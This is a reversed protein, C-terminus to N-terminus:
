CFFFRKIKSKFESLDWDRVLIRPVEYRSSWSHVQSHINSFAMCFGLEKCIRVSNCDYDAKAGFPYSFHRVDCGLLSEITEKSGNIENYQTDYDYLSLQTHTQGHAGIVASRSAHMLRLEEGSISRYPERGSEELDSWELLRGFVSEQVKRMSKRMSSRVADYAKRRGDESSTEFRRVVGDLELELEDPLDAGCLFIREVEDWWFEKRTGLNLTSVFFLAETDLSELVPLVNTYNDCYGDDFTLLVSGGPFREGTDMIDEFERVGILNYNKKLYEVHDYFNDPSVALQCPDAGLSCVRHYLLVVAPRDVM